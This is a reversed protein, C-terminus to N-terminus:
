RLHSYCDSDARVDIGTNLPTANHIKKSICLLEPGKVATLGVGCISPTVRYLTM